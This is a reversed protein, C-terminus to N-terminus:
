DDEAELRDVEADTAEELAASIFDGLDGVEEEIEQRTVGDNEADELLGAVTADTEPHPGDDPAYVTPQINEAVWQNAFDTGLQSM